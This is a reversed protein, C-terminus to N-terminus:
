AVPRKTYEENLDNRRSRITDAVRGVRVQNVLYTAPPLGEKVSGGSAVCVRAGGLAVAATNVGDVFTKARDAFNGQSATTLRGDALAGLTPGPIYFRGRGTRGPRTTDMTVAMAVQPPLVPGGLGAVVFARDVQVFAGAADRRVRGTDEVVAVRVNTLRVEPSILAALNNAWANQCAIAFTSLEDKTGALGNPITLSLGHVFIEWPTAVLGFVGSFSVQYHLPPPM